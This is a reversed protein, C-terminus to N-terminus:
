PFVATGCMEAESPYPSPATTSPNPKHLQVNGGGPKAASLLRPPVLYPAAAGEGLVIGWNDSSGPEGLDTLRVRFRVLPQDANNNTSAWGCIDRTNPEAVPNPVLFGTIEDSNIHYGTSHDVVNVHGWFEGHKCGGHAGFSIKKNTDSMVFGGSTVFDCPAVVGSGSSVVFPELVHVDTGTEVTVTQSTPSVQSGPADVTVTYTGQGVGFDYSGNPLTTPTSVAEGAKTVTVTAVIGEGDANVVVGCITSGESCQAAAPSAAMGVLALVLAAISAASATRRVRGGTTQTSQNM